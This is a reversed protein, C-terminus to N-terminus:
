DWDFNLTKIDKESRYGLCYKQKEKLDRLEEVTGLTRYQQIEELADMAVQFACKFEGFMCNDSCHIAKYRDSCAKMRIDKIAEQETM